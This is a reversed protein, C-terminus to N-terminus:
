SHAPNWISLDRGIMQELERLDDRFYEHLARQDDSSVDRKWRASDGQQNSYVLEELDMPAFGPAAGVHRLAVAYAQRPDDRIDDYLMVLLRDEFLARFPELSAAYWGGAVLGLRDDEPPKKRALDLLSSRPHLREYKIHHVMASNARDVPNRLVAMLRADPITRKIREAVAQPEHRWMMYGPTAEGVIREGNWGAFQRRYWEVGLNEYRKPSNFFGLEYPATFVDPHAGLNHRLWRTASKQAGIILFTPLPASTVGRDKSDSRNM